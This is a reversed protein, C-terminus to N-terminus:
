FIGTYIQFIYINIYHEPELFTQLLFWLFIQFPNLIRELDSETEFPLPGGFINSVLFLDASCLRVNVTMHVM